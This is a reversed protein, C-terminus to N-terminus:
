KKLIAYGWAELEAKKDQYAFKNSILGQYNSLDIDISLKENSLNVITIIEANADAKKFALVENDPHTAILEFAGGQAGNWLASTHHKLGNLNKYFDAKPYDKWDIPDKEFFELRKSNAAEQGSYILPMGGLTYSLVAMAEDAEALREEITGNWSNEDHNTIFYMMYAREPKKAQERDLYDLIDKKGKEGKAVQNMIHHFEWGYNMDFAAELLDTQESEALMFVPKIAQLQPRADEWFDTPVESAVDCRYGDINAEAVWFKLADIMAARMEENSYDLAIVDTWDFPSVLEGNEDKEYFEPNSAVWIHDWSTHNAVWDLMVYMGLEHAQDVVMKFDDFTGYEPNVAKYDRVAYYSGLSGKKNKEGIPHIPMFWLIDVGMEKLRPLENAFAQLTGEQTYQRLNVEYINANKTWEPAAFVQKGKNQKEAIAEANEQKPTMNCASFLFLSLLGIGLFKMKM